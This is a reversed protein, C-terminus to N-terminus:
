CGYSRLILLVASSLKEMDDCRDAGCGRTCIASGLFAAHKGSSVWVQPGQSEAGLTAARAIQSADCLTDEAGVCVLLASELSRGRRSEGCCVCARRRSRTREQRLGEAVSRLLAVGGTGPPGSASFGAWLDNRQGSGRHAERCFGTFQAPHSSCDSRSILFLPEFQALLLTEQADALGDHDSDLSADPVPAQACCIAVLGFPVWALIFFRM